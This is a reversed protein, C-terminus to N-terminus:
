GYFWYEAAYDVSFESKMGECTAPSMGGATYVRYVEKIGVGDVAVLKLWPVDMSAVPSVVSAVKKAAAWEDNGGLRLDFFPMASASFYHEGLIASDPGALSALSAFFDLTELPVNQLFAPIRHLLRQDSSVICSADFLTALAGTSTPKATDNAPSSPCTYNQVGRGLAVHQLTLNPSPSPLATQNYELNLITHNLCCSTLDLDQLTSITTTFVSTTTLINNATALVLPLLLPLPFPFHFHNLYM